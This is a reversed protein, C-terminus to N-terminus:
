SQKRYEGTKKNKDNGKENAEARTIVSLSVIEDRILEPLINFKSSIYQRTTNWDSTQSIHLDAPTPDFFIVSALLTGATQSAANRIYEVKITGFNVVTDSRNINIGTSSNIHFHHPSDVLVGIQIVRTIFYQSDDVLVYVYGNEDPKFKKPKKEGKKNFLVRFKAYQNKEILKGNKYFVFKGALLKKGKIENASKINPTITHELCGGASFLVFVSICLIVLKNKYFQNTRNSM